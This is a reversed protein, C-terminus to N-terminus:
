RCAETKGVAAAATATEGLDPFVRAASPRRAPMSDTTTLPM